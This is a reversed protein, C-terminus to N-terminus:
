QPDNMQIM